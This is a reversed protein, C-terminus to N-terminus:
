SPEQESAMCAIDDDDLKEMDLTCRGTYLALLMADFRGQVHPLSNPRIMKDEFKLAYVRGENDMSIRFSAKHRADHRDFSGSRYSSGYRNIGPESDDDLYLCGGLSSYESEEFYAYFEENWEKRFARRAEEMLDTVKIIAPLDPFVEKELATMAVDITKVNAGMVTRTLAANLLHQFKAVDDLKLGHPMQTSLQEKLSKRFDSGYSTADNIADALAKTMASELMPLIKEPNFVRVLLAELDIEFKM